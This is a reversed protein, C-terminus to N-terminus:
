LQRDRRPRIPEDVATHNKDFYDAKLNRYSSVGYWSVDGGSLSEGLADLGISLAQRRQHLYHDHALPAERSDRGEPVATHSTLVFQEPTHGPLPEDTSSSKAPAQVYKIREVIQPEAHRVQWALCLAVFTSLATALPWLWRTVGASGERQRVSEQGARFLLEARNMSSDHPRFMALEHEFESLDDHQQETM